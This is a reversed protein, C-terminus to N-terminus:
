DFEAGGAPACDNGVFEGYGVDAEGDGADSGVDFGLGLGVTDEDAAIGAEKALGENGFGGTNEGCGADGWDDNGVGRGRGGDGVGDALEFGGAGDVEGGGVIGGLVVADLEGGVVAGGGERFDGFLDFGGDGVEFGRACCDWLGSWGGVTVFM